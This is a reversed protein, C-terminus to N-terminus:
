PATATATPTFTPTITATATFTATLQSALQSTPQLIPINGYVWINYPETNNTLGGLFCALYLSEEDASFFEEGKVVIFDEVRCMTDRNELKVGGKTVETEVKVKVLDDVREAEIKVVVAEGTELSALIAINGDCHVPEDWVAPGCINVKEPTATSTLTPLDTSPPLNTLTGAVLSSIQASDPTAPVSAAAGGCAALLVSALIISSLIVFLLRKLRKDSM